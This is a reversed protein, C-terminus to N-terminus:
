STISFPFLLYMATFYETSEKILDWALAAMKFTPHRTGDPGDYLDYVDTMGTRQLLLMRLYFSDNGPYGLPMRTVPNELKEYRKWKKTRSVFVYRKAFELYTLQFAWPLLPPEKGTRQRELKDDDREQHEYDFFQELENDEVYFMEYGLKKNMKAEIMNPPYDDKIMELYKEYIRREMKNRKFFAMFAHENLQKESNAVDPVEGAEVNVLQDDPVFYGLRKVSPKLESIPFGSISWHGEDSTIVRGYKYMKVEDKTDAFEKFEVYAVDNGKHMYNLVYAITSMGHSGEVNEHLRYRLMMPANYGPLFVNSIKYPLTGLRKTRIPMEFKSDPTITIRRRYHPYGEISGDTVDLQARPFKKDCKGYKWCDQECGKPYDPGCPTHSMHSAVMDALSKDHIHQHKGRLVRNSRAPVTRIKKSKNKSVGPRRVIRPNPRPGRKPPIADKACEPEVVEIDSSSAEDDALISLREREELTPDPENPYFGPDDKKDPTASRGTRNPGTLIKDELEDENDDPKISNIENM